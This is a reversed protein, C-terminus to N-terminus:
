LPYQQRSQDELRIMMELMDDSILRGEGEGLIM